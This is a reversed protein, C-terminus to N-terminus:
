SGKLSSINFFTLCEERSSLIRYLVGDYVVNLLYLQQYNNLFGPVVQDYMAISLGPKHVANDFTINMAKKPKAHIGAASAVSVMAFAFFTAILIVKLTKM